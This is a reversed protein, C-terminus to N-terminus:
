PTEVLAASTILHVPYRRIEGGDVGELIGGAVSVPTIVRQTAVGRSDVFGLWVSRGESAAARLLELTAAVATGRPTAAARDGARLQDVLAGLQDDGVQGPAQGRRAVRAKAPIRRGPPRLDLVSGDASEAAPAFGATRLEDLVEILPLPSVLVTPAIRRLELRAAAPNALVETILVADDCRLFSGAAGGRLRGHRRAVDDIMYTLSQPVPTRSRSRFLEHLEDATRGGDLARRVSAESVRYVTAGGASEVDAVLAMEAALLPELPGPAVVTLDAQVLVHDLPEPMADAMRKAAMAPGEALLARTASTVAGLAMVGLAAAEAYTWRVVDDRLKGGRRPARWALLAAVEDANPASTGAPLEALAELVRRRERPALPRRLDDTLPGIAKDREDRTGILAPLRPLELWSAALTAWRQEPAAVLWGDTLTTPVWEPEVGESDGVLGAGVVLEALLGARAEDVELAKAIRRVERVGLGGSRLVPAPEESWLRLLAEVHRVLELAEGAATTDVVSQSRAITTLSPEKVQVTGLPRRGRVAMGVERPLEVTEHDRRALLGMALLRQTPTTARELPVVVAADRTLGIPSEGSLATLLRREPEALGTLTETLDKGVLHPLSRGLGGPFPPAVERAAPVASVAGDEGWVIARARLAAVAGAVRTLTADATLLKAVERVSVPATDADLVLLAELVTLTFTDLDECARAVSARIGARTALVTSDAPAPTALDPRARLLAVLADDDLARFWDALSPGAM